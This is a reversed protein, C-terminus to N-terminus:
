SQKWKQKSLFTSQCSNLSIYIYIMYIIPQISLYKYQYPWSNQLLEAVSIFSGIALRAARSEKTIITEPIASNKVYIDCQSLKNDNSNNNNSNINNNNTHSAYKLHFRVNLRGGLFQQCLYLTDKAFLSVRSNVCILSQYLTGAQQNCLVACCLVVCSLEACCLLCNALNFVYHM